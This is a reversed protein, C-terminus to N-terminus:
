ARATKVNEIATYLYTDCRYTGCAFLSGDYVTPRYPPKNVIKQFTHGKSQVATAPTPLNLGYVLNVVGTPHGYNSWSVTRIRDVVVTYDFKKTANNTNDSQWKSM